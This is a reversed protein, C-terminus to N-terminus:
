STLHNLLALVFLAGGFAMLRNGRRRMQVGMPSLLSEDPVYHDDLEENVRITQLAAPTKALQDSRARLWLALAFFVFAPVALVISILVRGERNM